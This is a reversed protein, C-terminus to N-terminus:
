FSLLQMSIDSMKSVTKLGYQGTAQAKSRARLTAVDALFNLGGQLPVESIVAIKSSILM